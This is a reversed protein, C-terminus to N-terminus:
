RRPKDADAPADQEAHRQNRGRRPWTIVVGVLGILLFPILDSTTREVHHATGKTTVRLYQAGGDVPRFTPLVIRDYEDAKAVHSGDSLVVRRNASNALLDYDEKSVIQVEYDEPRLGRNQSHYHVFRAFTWTSLSWLVVMVFLGWPLRQLIQRYQEKM